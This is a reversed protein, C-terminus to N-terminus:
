IRKKPSCLPQPRLQNIQKRIQKAKPQGTLLSLRLKLSGKKTRDYFDDDFDEEANGLYYDLYNDRLQELDANEEEPKEVEPEDVPEDLTDM